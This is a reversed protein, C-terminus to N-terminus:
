NIASSVQTELEYSWLVMDCGAEFLWLYTAFFILEKPYNALQLQIMSNRRHYSGDGSGCLTLPNSKRRLLNVM